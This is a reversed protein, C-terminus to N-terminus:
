FLHRNADRKVKVTGDRGLDLHTPGSGIKDSLNDKMVLM